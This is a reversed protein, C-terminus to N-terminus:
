YEWYDLFVVFTPAFSNRQGSNSTSFGATFRFVPRGGVTTELATYFDSSKAPTVAYIAPIQGAFINDVDSRIYQACVLDVSSKDFHRSAKFAELNSGIITCEDYSGLSLHTSGSSYFTLSNSIQGDHGQNFFLINQTSAEELASKVRSFCTVRASMKSVDTYYFIEVFAIGLDTVFLRWGNDVHTRNIRSISKVPANSVPDVRVNGYKYFWVTNTTASDDIGLTYESMTASPSVFEIVDGVENIAAWGASETSDYGDVLCAKLVAKVDGAVRASYDIQPAGIDTSSFKKVTENVPNLFSM